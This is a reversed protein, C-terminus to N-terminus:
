HYMHLYILCEEFSFLHQGVKMAKFKSPDNGCYHKLIVRASIGYFCLGHLIPQAFGGMAAFSPDVHLPNLDGSLRYLAAQFNIIKIYGGIWKM